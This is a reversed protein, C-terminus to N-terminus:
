KKYNQILSCVESESGPNRMNVVCDKVASAFQIAGTARYSVDRLSLKRDLVPCCNTHM